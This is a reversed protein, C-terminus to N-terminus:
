RPHVGFLLFLCVILLAVGALWGVMPGSPGVFTKCEVCYAGDGDASFVMQCCDGNNCKCTM